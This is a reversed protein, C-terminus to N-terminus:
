STPGPRSVGCVDGQVACPQWSGIFCSDEPLQVSPSQVGHVCGGDVAGRGVVPARVVDQLDVSPAVQNAGGACAPVRANVVRWRGGGVREVTLWVVM